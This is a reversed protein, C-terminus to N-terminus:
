MTKNQAASKIRFPKNKKKQKTKAEFTTFSLTAASEHSYASSQRYHKILSNPLKVVQLLSVVLSWTLVTKSPASQNGVHRYKTHLTSWLHISSSIVHESPPENSHVCWTTPLSLLVQWECLGPAFSVSPVKFKLLSCPPLLYSLVDHWPCAWPTM